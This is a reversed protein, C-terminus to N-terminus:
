LPLWLIRSHILNRNDHLHYGWSNSVTLIYWYAVHLEAYLLVEYDLLLCLHRKLLTLKTQHM